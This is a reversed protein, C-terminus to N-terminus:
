PHPRHQHITATVVGWLVSDPTLRTQASLVFRQGDHWLVLDSSRPALARDVIAVDGDFIGRAIGQDGRVRFMFTSTPQAILFQNLDLGKLRRDAAPNPFGAHISVGQSEYDRLPDQPEEMAM